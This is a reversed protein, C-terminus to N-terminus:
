YTGGDAEALSVIGGAIAFQDSDFAAVGKQTFSATAATVTMTTGTVSTSIGQTANGSITLSEGNTIAASGTGGSFTLDKTSVAGGAVNFNATAFSAVGLTSTTAAAVAFSLDDTGDTSTVTINTQSGNAVMAAVADYVREDTHYLNSGESLDSTSKGAFDSDFGLYEGTLTAATLGGVSLDALNFSAHATDIQASADPEPTYGDYVKWIGDTADRFFGAHAYSGTDNYNGAFGLDVSIIPSGDSELQNLYIMNDSVALNTADITVTTGNVQLNGGIVVDEIVRLGTFTVSDAEGVAQGISIEGSSLTVGTGASFHARTETASPGTYTIAGSATNYSLSGDGGADTVSIANRAASDARAETYYLNSGESLDTTSFATMDVAIDDANVTIGTGAGVAIDRTATIDGGGTLGNGATISVTSHDIHENAVFGALGDHDIAGTSASITGTNPNYTVGSGAQLAHRADSDARATTYYLNTSGESLDDTSKAGFAEDIENNVQASDLTTPTNVFNNYNLYYSGQQGDLLDADLGSAAGDVTKIDTLLEAATSYTERAQVYATDVVNAVDQSDLSGIEVTVSGAATLRGQQDVTFTPIQNSSGFSGPTVATDDLAISIQNNTLTTTLGTGGVFNLASDALVVEDTSVGDGITIVASIGGTATDVYAKTAADSTATPTAVNTIRTSGADITGSTSRLNLNGTDATVSNGDITLNDVKLQDIKSNADVLLASSATLQGPVHDLMSTFYKGGIVDINSAEGNVEAGTGIYLRDGGNAQTGSLYSYALEGQALAAPSGSSGSRKIRIISAM